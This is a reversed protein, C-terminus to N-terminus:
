LIFDAAALVTPSSVILSFDATGDGDVDGQVLYEDVTTGSPVILLEGANGTFGRLAIVFAQNGTVNANADIALLDIRDGEAASFDSIRDTSGLDVARFVFRDAGIGGTITDAGAGGELTDNGAGGDILDAGEKAFIRDAGGNGAITDNGANANLVNALGNGTLEAGTTGLLTGNELNLGLVLRGNSFVTDVGDNLSEGITAVDTSQVFYSDSGAGGALTNVGSTDLLRDNGAGGELRDNGAGGNLSDDGDGGLLTDDGPGGGITDNGAGGLVHDRGVSGTLLDHGDQLDIVSGTTPLGSGTAPVTLTDNGSTTVLYDVLVNAFSSGDSNGLYYGFMGPTSGAAIEVVAGSLSALINIPFLGTIARDGGLDNSLLVDAAIQAPLGSTLYIVDNRGIPPGSFVFDGPGVDAALVGQLLVSNATSTGFTIRLGDVTDTLVMAAPDLLAGHFRLKDEGPTFGRVVDHGFSGATADFVMEQVGDNAVITDNGSGGDITAAGDATILDAGEGGLLTDLGPSLANALGSDITDNGSGGDIFDLGDSGTLVDNGAGGFITDGIDEGNAGGTITDNGDDGSLDDGGDGGDISDNGAGGQVFDNGDGALVTDNGDGARVTDEGGGAEILDAGDPGSGVPGDVGIGGGTGVV